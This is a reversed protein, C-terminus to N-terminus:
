KTGSILGLELAEVRFPLDEVCRIDFNRRRFSGGRVYRSRPESLNVTRYFSFSNYDDDSYRILANGSMKDGVLEISTCQKLVSTGGDILPTRIFKDIYISDDNLFTTNMEYIKGNITAVYDKSRTAAYFIPLFYSETYGQSTGVVTATQNVADCPYSFYDNDLKKIAIWVNANDINTGNIRIKDGDSYGHAPKYVTAVKNSVTVSTNATVSGAVRSTWFHSLKTNLDIVITKNIDTLTLVYFSHGNFKITYAAVDDMTSQNLIRDVYQDSIPEPLYGNTLYISRGKEVNHGVFLIQNSTIAISGAAVCGIKTLANDVPSLVSGPSPNGANYFFEISNEKFAIIYNLQRAIAVASDPFANATRFNLAQWSSPANLDSQYIRGIPTMVFIYGDLYVVGPVTTTPYDTDVVQTVTNTTDNVVYASTTNKVFFTETDIQTFDYKEIAM